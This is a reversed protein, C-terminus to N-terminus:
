TYAILGDHLADHYAVALVQGEALHLHLGVGHHELLGLHYPLCELHRDLFVGKYIIAGGIACGFARGDLFQHLLQRAHLDVFVALYGMVALLDLLYQYVALLKHSAVGLYGHLIQGGRDHLFDLGIVFLAVQRADGADVVAFLGGHEVESQLLAHVAAGKGIYVQTQAVVAAIGLSAHACVKVVFVPEHHKATGVVHVIHTERTAASTAEPGATLPQVGGLHQPEVIVVLFDLLYLYVQTGEPTM